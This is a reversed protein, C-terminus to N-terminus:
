SLSRSHVKDVTVKRLGIHSEHDTGVVDGIGGSAGIGAARNVPHGDQVHVLSTGYHHILRLMLVPKAPM